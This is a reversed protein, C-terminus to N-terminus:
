KKKLGIKAILDEHKKEDKSKLYKLLKRRKSIMDLLGKRSHIDKPNEKLHASLKEIKKSLLSVQAETGGTNEKDKLVEEKEEKTLM